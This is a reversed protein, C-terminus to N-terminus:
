LDVPWRERIVKGYRCFVLPIPIMLCALVGLVTNGWGFGLADYMPPGALPLFAGFISRMFTAAAIASASYESFTDVFYTQGPVYIGTMGLGYPIMGIIPVIWHTRKEAAWGYWFLSVPILCASYVCRPLRMEPEYNGSNKARLKAVDADNGKLLFSLAVVMGIGLGLYALGTLQTSWGYVNTFVLPITTFMLYLMGYLLAIYMAFFFVIPSRTLLKTPRILSRLFIEKPTGRLQLQSELEPRSLEKRLRHTKQMLVAIAYSEHMFVTLLATTVGTFCLLIWYAWRWGLQQSIFGGAIPGPSTLPWLNLADYLM